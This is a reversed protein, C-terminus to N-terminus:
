IREGNRNQKKLNDISVNQHRFNMVIRSCKYEGHFGLFEMHNEGKKVVNAIAIGNAFLVGNEFIFSTEFKRPSEVCKGVPLPKIDCCEM